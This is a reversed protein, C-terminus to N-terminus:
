WPRFLCREGFWGQPQGNLGWTQFYAELIQFFTGRARLVRFTKEQNVSLFELNNWCLRVGRSKAPIVETM